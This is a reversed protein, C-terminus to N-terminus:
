VFRNAGALAPCIIEGARYANVREEVRGSRRTNEAGTDRELGAGPCCPVGVRQALIQDHRCAAAPYLTPAPRDFFDTRPIHDPNRWTLLVPMAGRCRCRHGMDGNLLLKVALGGVPHFLDAVFM